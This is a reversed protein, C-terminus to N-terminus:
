RWVPCLLRNPVRDQQSNGVVLLNQHEAYSYLLVMRLRHKMRYYADARKLLGFDTGELGSLFPREGTFRAYLKYGAKVAATAIGRQAFVAKPLHHYIGM